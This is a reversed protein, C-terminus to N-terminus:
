SIPAARVASHPSFFLRQCAFLSASEGASRRTSSVNGGVGAGWKSKRGQGAPKLVAQRRVRSTGQKGDQHIDGRTLNLVAGFGAAAHELLLSVFLHSRRRQVARTKSTLTQSEHVASTVPLHLAKCKQTQQGCIYSQKAVHRNHMFHNNAHRQILVIETHYLLGM